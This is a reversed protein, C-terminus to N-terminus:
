PGDTTTTEALVTPDPLSSTVTPGPQTAVVVDVTTATTVPSTPVEDGIRSAVPWCVALTIGAAVAVALLARRFRERDGPRSIGAPATDVDVTQLNPSM